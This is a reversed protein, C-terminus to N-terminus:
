KLASKIKEIVLSKYKNDKEHRLFEDIDKYPEPVSITKINVFEKYKNKFSNKGIQGAEDKDFMLYINNTYRHIQFFQFSSVSAGGFAIVNSIGHTHLAICDFQGEVCLVSNNNIIDKKSKDLGYVFLEKNCGLTYKYKQLKSESREEDSLLTRGVMGIIKKSVNRYPMILNHNSFHGHSVGKWINPFYLNMTQLEEKPMLSTLIHIHDDSPFYGFEYLRQTKKDLRSDLYERTQKAYVSSHLLDITINILKEFLDQNM